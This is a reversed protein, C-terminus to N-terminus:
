AIRILFFFELLQNLQLLNLYIEEMTNVYEPALQDNAM